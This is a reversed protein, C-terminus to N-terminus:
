LFKSVRLFATITKFNSYLPKVMSNHMFSDLGFTLCQLAGDSHKKLLLVTDVANPRLETQFSLIMETIIMKHFAGKNSDSLLSM